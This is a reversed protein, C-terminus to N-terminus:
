RNVGVFEYRESWMPHITYGTVWPQHVVYRETHHLFVWPADDVIIKEAEQYMKLRKPRNSETLAENLLKNVKPNSYFARNQSATPTISAKNFLVDLFNSPDPFDQLWGMLSLHLNKRKGAQAKLEPYRVGKLDITMGVAALDAKISQAAKEYWGERTSYWLTLPKDQYNAQKLLQRAKEPNYDYRFLKDNYGPMGPPLAGRAITARGALFSAIRERNIAYNMARRVLVNDLPALENNLCLYRIDMMPGHLVNKKWQASDRLRLFDPPFAASIDLTDVEGREFRMIQLTPSNGIEVHVRDSKPFEPNYYHPNKKLTLTADHVWRELMFPGCGNPHESIAKGWRAVSEPAMAYAFPLALYNFFTADAKKLYFTIEDENKVKIGKIRLAGKQKQLASKQSEPAAEIKENLASCAESFEDAGEIAHYGSLALGDSATAPDLIREIAFRFDDAVVRRGPMKGTAEDYHFRVDRRLKFWYIKGDSSVLHQKAVEDVIGAKEDYDVLGRYLLRVFPISSTDYAYAPDLTSADSEVAVRLTKESHATPACGGGGFVFLLALPLSLLHRRVTLTYRGVQAM